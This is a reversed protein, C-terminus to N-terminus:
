RQLHKYISNIAPCQHKLRIATVTLKTQFDQIYRQQLLNELVTTVGHDTPQKEM